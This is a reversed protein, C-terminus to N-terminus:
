GQYTGITVRDLSALDQFTNISTYGAKEFISLVEKRQNFGHEVLLFGPTKLFNKATSIIAKLDQLGSDASILASLPEFRKVNPSFDPDNEAIYPPNSVIADFKLAPLGECWNGQHFIINNLHHHRANRGAIKIAAPHIDVAHLIWDPKEKALALAIAGSGTGLDAILANKPLPLKLMEEVLVETEPRPILVDPNVELDLSWFEKHGTLYAIPEGQQRKNILLFFHELQDSTIERESFIYLQSRDYKLVHALLVEAELLPVDTVASLYLAGQKLADSITEANM